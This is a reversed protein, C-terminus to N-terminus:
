LDKKEKLNQLIDKNDNIIIEECCNNELIKDFNIDKLINESYEVYSNGIEKNCECYKNFIDKIIPLNM